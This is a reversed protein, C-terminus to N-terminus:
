QLPRNLSILICALNFFGQHVSLYRDYRVVLRRFNGLMAPVAGMGLLSSLSAIMIPKKNKM